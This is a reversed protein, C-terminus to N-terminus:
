RRLEFREPVRPVLVVITKLPSGDVGEGAFAAMGFTPTVASRPGYAQVSRGSGAGGSGAATPSGNGDRGEAEGSEAGGLEDASAAAASWEEGLTTPVILLAEDARLAASLRLPEVWPREAATPM